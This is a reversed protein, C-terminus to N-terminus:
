HIRIRDKLMLAALDICAVHDSVSCGVYADDASFVTHSSGQGVEIRALERQTGADFIRVWESAFGTAVVYRGDPSIDLGHPYADTALLAVRALTAADFVALTDDFFNRIKRM